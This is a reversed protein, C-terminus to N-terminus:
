FLEFFEDTTLLPILEKALEAVKGSRSIARWGGLGLFYMREVGFIRDVPDMLTFRLMPSFQKFNEAKALLTDVRSQPIPMAQQFADVIADIDPGTNEYVIIQKGKVDVRYNRPKPHKAIAREVYTREEPRILASRSKVLSVRGNVSEQIEYGEPLSELIGAQPNPSFYYRVTGRNSLGKCLFYKQGKHNTYVVPM